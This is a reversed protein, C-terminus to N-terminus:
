YKLLEMTVEYLEDHMAAQHVCWDSFRELSFVAIQADYLSAFFKVSKFIAEMDDKGFRKDLSDPFFCFLPANKGFVCFDITKGDASSPTNKKIEEADRFSNHFKAKAYRMCSDHFSPIAVSSDLDLNVLDFLSELNSVQMMQKGCAYRSWATFYSNSLHYTAQKRQPPHDAIVFGHKILAELYTGCKNNPFGIAKAIEVLRHKGDAISCLIPFYSEPNRFCRSMWDPLITSFASDYSLLSRLNEEYDAGANLQNLIEPIGGTLSFLRVINQKSYKPFLKCYDPISLYPISVDNSNRIEFRSELYCLVIGHHNQAAGQLAEACELMAANTEDELFFLLRNGSKESILTDIAQPFDVIGVSQSLYLQCFLPLCKEYALNHFSIYFANAHSRVFEQALKTKGCGQPGVLCFSFHNSGNMRARSVNKWAVEVSKIKKSFDIMM